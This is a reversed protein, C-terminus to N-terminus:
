KEVLTEYNEMVDVIYKTVDIKYKLLKERKEIGEKKLNKNELLELSKNLAKIYMNKPNTINYVLSYQKELENLYGRKTTSTYIAHTGLMACESATTAGEGIYLTSYYLLDHLNEPKVMVQYKKLTKDLKTESTILVRGFDELKNIYANLNERSIGKEGADHIANWAVLRLVIITDNKSLNLEDLVKSNPTFYNPHLYALEHYGEYRIQKKGLNKEYCSPTFIKTAFPVTLAHQLKASENTDFIFSPKKLLRAVHSIYLDGCGGVFIDPKFNKSIKLLEYEIKPVNMAKKFISGLNEGIIKYKINNEDAFDKVLDSTVEKDIVTLFVNIGKEQLIKMTNKFLHFKAPHDVNFLVKM